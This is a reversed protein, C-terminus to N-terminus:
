VHARGIQTFTLQSSLQNKLKNKIQEIKSVDYGKLKARFEFTSEIKTLIEKIADQRELITIKDSETSLHRVLQNVGIKTSSRNILAFLSSKGFVDLDSLYPHNEDEFSVGDHYGNPLGNLLNAENQYIWLLNKLYVEEKILHNQKKIVLVFVAIPISLCGGLILVLTENQVSVFGIFIFVEIILLVVRLISFRDIKTKVKAIKDTIEKILVEYHKLTQQQTKLM